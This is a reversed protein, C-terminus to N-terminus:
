IANRDAMRRVGLALAVTLVVPLGEPIAAVALAAAVSLMDTFSEGLALGLLVTIVVAVLIVVGIIHAFSDMREQLPSRMDETERMEEAIHGLETREGTAVVVGVARGSAIASGDYAMNRREVLPLDEDLPEPHKEVPISEGTLLSEDLQLDTTSLLRLDAPVREGSGLVVIDGPVVEHSEIEVEEGDRLVEATPSVLSMLAQVSAEARREQLFGITANLVLVAVIAGTDVYDGLLFTVAAAIILIYILPNRFQDALTQWWPTGEDGGIENPGHEDFRRAAEETTLGADPDVDLHEIVEEIGLAHWATAPAQDARATTGEREREDVTKTDEASM